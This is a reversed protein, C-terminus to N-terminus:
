RESLAWNPGRIRSEFMADANICTLRSIDPVIGGYDSSPRDDAFLVPFILIFNSCPDVSSPRLDAPGLVVRVARIVVSNLGRSDSRNGTADILLGSIGVESGRSSIGAM